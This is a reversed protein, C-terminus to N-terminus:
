NEDSFKSYKPKIMKWVLAKAKEKKGNAIQFAIAKEPFLSIYRAIDEKSENRRLATKAIYNATEMLINYQSILDEEIDRVWQYMEDPLVEYVSELRDEQLARWVDKSSTHFIMRHMKVYDEGKMKIRYGNSFKLVFGEIERGDAEKLYSLAQLIGTFTMDRSFGIGLRLGEKIHDLEHSGDKSRVALLVLGEFEYNIVIRSDPHIIEFLYTYQPKLKSPPIRDQLWRTAFQSQPNTFSGRTAVAIEDNDPYTIGLVGDLKNFFRPRETIIEIDESSDIIEGYNFIKPFPRAIINRDDDIILGRCNRTYEDWAREYQTKTSYNYITVPLTPHRIGKILKQKVRAEIEALDKASIRSGLTIDHITMASVM